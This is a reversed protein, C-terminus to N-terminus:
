LQVFASSKYLNPLSLAYIVSFIAFFATIGLIAFKNLWLADVLQLIDLPEKDPM